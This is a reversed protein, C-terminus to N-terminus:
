RLLKCWSVCWNRKLLMKKQCLTCNVFDNKIEKNLLKELAVYCKKEHEFSSWRWTPIIGGPLIAEIEEVSNEDLYYLTLLLQDDSALTELARDIYQRREEHAFHQMADNLGTANQYAVVEDDVDSFELSKKRTKSIATNYAIRYLWTSFKAEKKFDNIKQFAKLFTDQAVEEADEASKVIRLAITYVMGKHKDVLLEFATLNGAQVQTVYRIDDPEAM